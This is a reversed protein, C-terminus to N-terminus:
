NHKKRFIAHSMANEQHNVRAREGPTLHGGNMARDRAVERSIHAEGRELHATERPTLSGSAVGQAIRDQQHQERHDVEGAFVTGALLMGGIVLITSKM